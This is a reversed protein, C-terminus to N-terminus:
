KKHGRRNNNLMGFGHRSIVAEITGAVRDHHLFQANQFVGPAM